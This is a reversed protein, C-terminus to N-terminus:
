TSSLGEENKRNFRNMAAAIGDNVIVSVAQAALDLLEDVAGMQSKKIQGLV